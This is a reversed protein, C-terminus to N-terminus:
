PVRGMERENAAKETESSDKAMRLEETEENKKRTGRVAERSDEKMARNEVVEGM